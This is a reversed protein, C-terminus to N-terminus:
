QLVKQQAFRGSAEKVYKGCQSVVKTWTDGETVQGLDRQWEIGNEIDFPFSVFCQLCLIKLNKNFTLYLM